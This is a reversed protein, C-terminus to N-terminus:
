PKKWQFSWIESLKRGYGAIHANIEVLAGSDAAIDVVLRWGAGDPLKSLAVVDSRGGVVNVVPTVQPDFESATALIGGKFDIVFKRTDPPTDMGAAGGVGGFTDAVWALDSAPDPALAGWHLRYAFARTEGAQVKQAPVWFAGINDHVELRTPIEFLRVAGEGWDGIPEVDLSPRLDYRAGSDQFDEFDRSRQHLGFRRPATEMFYSTALSEPNSLARWIVDGDAREIRLGDSDHVQPRYDDFLHRNIPGYLFMSTLPAIGLEFVAERFHLECRVDVVTTEGPTLVFEYAGTLRASDMLAWMKVSRAGAAPRELWFESFRPFEEPRPLGSDIAVGRASLGYRNGRGLARFYSSGLFSIVEDQQAVSNFPATLKFGAVGPLTFGAPIDVKIGDRYEFDAAGFTMPTVQGEVVEHVLVPRDFLWGTHFPQVQWGPIEDAWRARNPRFAIRNYDDYDLQSLLPDKPGAEPDPAAARSKALASLWEFTFPEAAAAAVAAEQALLPSALSLAGVAATSGLFRRRNLLPMDTMLADQTM